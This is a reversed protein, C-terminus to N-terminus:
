GLTPSDTVGFAADVDTAAAEVADAFDPQSSDTPAREALGAITTDLEQCRAAPIWPAKRCATTLQTRARTLAFEAAQGANAATASATDAEQHVAVVRLQSSVARGRDQATSVQDDLSDSTARGILLGVVLGVVLAAAGVVYLRRRRRGAPVYIAM